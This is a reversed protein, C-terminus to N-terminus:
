VPRSGVRYSLADVLAAHRRAGTDVDVALVDAMRCLLAYYGTIL